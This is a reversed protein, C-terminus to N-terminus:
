ETGYYKRFRPFLALANSYNISNKEQTTQFRFNDLIGTYYKLVGPSAYCYHSGYLIHGPAAFKQLVLIMNEGTIATDYYFKKADEVFSEFTLGKILDPLVTAPSEVLWPLMGGAHSLIIKVNPHSKMLGSLTIDVATKTTEFPYEIIPQPLLPRILTIDVPHTPHIFVVANRRNLEDLINKFDPHGLYQHGRGYRTFLTVGDANLQDFSYAIEALTLEKDLLSPLNALFGYRQPNDDRLKAAYENAKRALKAAEEGPLICPGPATLSLLSTGVRHNKM